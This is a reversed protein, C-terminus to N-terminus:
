ANSLQVKITEKTHSLCFVHHLDSRSIYEGEVLIFVDIHAFKSYVSCSSHSNDVVYAMSYYKQKPLHQTKDVMIHRSIDVM